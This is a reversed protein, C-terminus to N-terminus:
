AAINNKTMYDRHAEIKDLYSQLEKIFSEIKNKESCLNYYKKQVIEYEHKFTAYEPHAKTFRSDRENQIEIYSKGHFKEEKEILKFMEEREKSYNDNKKRVADWAPQEEEIQSLIKELVSNKLTISSDLEKAVSLNCNMIRQIYPTVSGCIPVLSSLQDLFSLAGSIKEGKFRTLEDGELYLARNKNFYSYLVRYQSSSNLIKELGSVMEEVENLIYHKVFDDPASMAYNYIEATIDMVNTWEQSELHHRRTYRIIDCASAYFYHVWDSYPLIGIGKYYIQTYFYSSMGYGFNTRYVVRLDDNLNFSPFAWGARRHSYALVSPDNALMQYQEQLMYPLVHKRLSEFYNQRMECVYQAKETKNDSKDFESMKTQYESFSIKKVPPEWQYTGDLFRCFNYDKELVHLPSNKVYDQMELVTRNPNNSMCELEDLQDQYKFKLEIYDVKLKDENEVKRLVCMHTENVKVNSVNNM